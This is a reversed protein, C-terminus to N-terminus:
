WLVVAAVSWLVIVLGLLALAFIRKIHAVNSFQTVWALLVFAWIGALLLPAARRFGLWAARSYRWGSPPGDNIQRQATSM